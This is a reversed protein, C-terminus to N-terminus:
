VLGLGLVFRARVRFKAMAKVWVSVRGNFRYRVGGRPRVSFIIM